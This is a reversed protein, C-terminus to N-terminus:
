NRTHKGRIVEPTQREMQWRSVDINIYAIVVHLTDTRKYLDSVQERTRPSNITEAFFM